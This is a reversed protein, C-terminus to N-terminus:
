KELYVETRSNMNWTDAAAFFAPLEYDVPSPSLERTGDNNTMRINRIYSTYSVQNTITTIGLAFYITGATGSPFYVASDYYAPRNGMFPYEFEKWEGSSFGVKVLRSSAVLNNLISPDNSTSPPMNIRYGATEGSVVVPLLKDPTYAGMLRMRGDVIELLDYIEGNIIPNEIMYDAIIKTYDGLTTGDPIDFKYLAFQGNGLIHREALYPLTTGSAADATGAATERSNPEWQNDAAAFAPVSFGSGTSVVTKDGANNSLRINKIYSTFTGSDSSATIGLGVYIYKTLGGGGPLFNFSANNNFSNHRNGSLNYEVTKWTNASFGQDILKVSSYLNNIISAENTDNNLPFRIGVVQDNKEIQELMLGNYIGHLIMAVNRNNIDEQDEVLYEVIIKAYDDFSSGQPIEFRYLAFQGNAQVLKETFELDANAYVTFDRRPNNSLSGGSASPSWGYFTAINGGSLTPLQAAPIAKGKEVQVPDPMVLGLIGNANYSMTVYEPTATKLTWKVYLTIDGSPKYAADIIEGASTLSWGLFEQSETDALPPLVAAGIQAGSACSGPASPVGPGTWGNANYTIVINNGAPSDDCSTVAFLVFVMALMPVFNKKV